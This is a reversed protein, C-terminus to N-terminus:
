DKSTAGYIRSGRTHTIQIADSLVRSLPTSAPAIGGCVIIAATVDGSYRVREEAAGAERFVFLRESPPAAGLGKKAGGPMRADVIVCGVAEGDLKHGQESERLVPNQLEAKDRLVWPWTAPAGKRVFGDSIRGDGKRYEEIIHREYDFLYGTPLGDPAVWNIGLAQLILRAYLAPEQRCAEYTIRTWDGWDVMGVRKEPLKERPVLAAALKDKLNDLADIEQRQTEGIASGIFAVGDDCNKLEVKLQAAWEGAKAEESWFYVEVGRQKRLYYIVRQVIERVFAEDKFNYSLFIRLQGVGM